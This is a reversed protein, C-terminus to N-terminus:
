GASAASERSSAGFNEAIVPTRARIHARMLRALAEGDRARLLTIM